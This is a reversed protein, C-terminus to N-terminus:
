RRFWQQRIRYVLSSSCVRLLVREGGRGRGRGGGFVSKWGWLFCRARARPERCVCCVKTAKIPPVTGAARTLQVLLAPESALVKDKMVDVKRLAITKADGKASPVLAAFLEAAM